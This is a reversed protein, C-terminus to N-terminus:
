EIDFYIRIAILNTLFYYIDKDALDCTVIVDFKLDMFFSISKGYVYVPLTNGSCWESM